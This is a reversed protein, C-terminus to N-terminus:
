RPPAFQKLFADIENLAAVRVDDVERLIEHAVSADFMKLHASPIHKAFDVIAAPSVLQDGDTGILQIPLTISELRKGAALWLTSQYAAALWRLSPPGLVLEPKQERWWLEDEYRSDDHTLFSRRRVNPKTPRENSPWAKRTPSIAAVLRVAAAVWSVPLLKTEFGLMPASLIVADPDIGGEILSRLVLHGGMSHGVAVRPGPMQAKWHAWFEALDATWTRFDEIHGTTPDPLLRGSGGQGRWDFGTIAWGQNHWHALSEFWKEIMDGRGTQFLISGRTQGTQPWDFVRQPWGDKTKWEVFRAGIPLSRRFLDPSSVPMTVRQYTM